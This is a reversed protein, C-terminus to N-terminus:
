FFSSIFAFPLGIIESVASLVDDGQQGEEYPYPPYQGPASAPALKVTVGDRVFRQTTPPVAVRRQPASTMYQPTMPSFTGGYANTPQLARRDADFRYRPDGHTGAPYRWPNGSTLPRVKQIPKQSVTYSRKQWGANSRKRPTVKKEERAGLYPAAKEKAPKTQVAPKSVPEEAEETKAPPPTVVLDKELDEEMDRSTDRSEAVSQSLTSRQKLSSPPAMSGAVRERFAVAPRTTAAPAAKASVKEPLLSDRDVEVDSSTKLNSRFEAKVLTGPTHLPTPARVVGSNALLEFNGAGVWSATLFVIAVAVSWIKGM